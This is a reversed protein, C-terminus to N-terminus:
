AVARDTGPVELREPKLVYLDNARVADIGEIMADLDDHVSLHRGTLADADGRAIRVMLHMAAAPDAGRGAALEQLAWAKIRGIYSDAPPNEPLSESLGIPLLGPHLSFVSVGFRSTERAVNETLKVGAAKSVSYASVLPWRHVGAESAVNIIRGHRRTVMERLALQACVMMGGINIEMTRWWDRGDVEWLPGVPGLVGANNVLLDVPGLERRFRAFAAAVSGMDTVDATAAVAVGHSAEILAVTDALQDRSRALVGVAAGAGALSQAIMRGVGRGGGTVVAVTPVLETSSFGDLGLLHRHVILAAGDPTLM